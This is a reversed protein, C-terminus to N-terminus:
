RVRSLSARPGSPTSEAVEEDARRPSGAAPLGARCNLRGVDGKSPAEYRATVEVLQGAANIRQTAGLFAIDIGEGRLQEIAEDILSVAETYQGRLYGNFAYTSVYKSTM